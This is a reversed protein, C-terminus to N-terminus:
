SGKEPPDSARRTLTVDSAPAVLTGVFPDGEDTDLVTASWTGPELARCEFRGEADTFTAREFDGFWQSRDEQWWFDIRRRSLPRGAADVLRGAVGAAAQLRLDVRQASGEAPAPLEQLASCEGSRWACLRLGGSRAVAALLSPDGAAPGELAVAFRGLADCLKVYVEDGDDARGVYGFSVGSGGASGGDARVVRAGGPQDLVVALDFGLALLERPLALEGRVRAAGGWDIRGCDLDRPEWPLDYRQRWPVGGHLALALELTSTAPFTLTFAGDAAIPAVLM